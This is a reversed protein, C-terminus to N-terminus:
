QNNKELFYRVLENIQLSGAFAIIADVNMDEIYDNFIRIVQEKKLSINIVTPSPNQSYGVIRTIANSFVDQQNMNNLICKLTYDNNIIQGKIIEKLEEKNM